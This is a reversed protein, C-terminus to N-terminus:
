TWGGTSPGFKQGVGLRIRAATGCAMEVVVVAKWAFAFRNPPVACIKLIMGREDIFVVDLVEKCGLTHVSTCPRLIIAETPGLTPVGHIGRLRNYFSCADYAYLLPAGHRQLTVKNTLYKSVTGTVQFFINM